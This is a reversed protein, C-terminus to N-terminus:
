QAPDKSLYTAVPWKTAAYPLADCAVDASDKLVFLNVKALGMWFDKLVVLFLIFLCYEAPCIGLFFVGGWEYM